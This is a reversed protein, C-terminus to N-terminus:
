DQRGQPWGARRAFRWRPRWRLPIAVAVVTGEGARSAIALRGGVRSARERMGLLGWHGVLDAGDRADFGCGDDRVAVRVRRRGYELEVTVRRAAAYKRANTLAEEVIRLAEARVDARLPRPRGAVVVRVQTPADAFIRRAADEAAARLDPERAGPRRLEWVADRAEALTRDVLTLVRDLVPRQAESLGLRVSAVHLQLAIGGFGQLLSDHIERALRAREEGMAELRARLVARHASWLVAALTLVSLAVFWARRYLPPLVVVDLSAEDASWGGAETRGTVRFRYRGPALRTYTAERQGGAEAWATDFGDLRHRFRVEPGHTLDIGTYRLALRRAGPGLTVAGGAAVPGGDVLAAEIRM